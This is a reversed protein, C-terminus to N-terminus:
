QPRPTTLLSCCEWVLYVLTSVFLLAGLAAPFILAHLADPNHSLEALVYPVFSLIQLSVLVILLLRNRRFHERSRQRLFLTGALPFLPGSYVLLAIVAILGESM